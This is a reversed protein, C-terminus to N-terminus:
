QIPKGLDNNEIDIIEEKGAGHFDADQDMLQQTDDDIILTNPRIHHQAEDRLDNPTGTFLFRLQFDAPCCSPSQGAQSDV